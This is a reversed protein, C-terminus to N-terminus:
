AIQIFGGSHGTASGMAKLADITRRCDRPDRCANRAQTLLNDMIGSM